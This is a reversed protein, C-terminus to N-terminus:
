CFPNPGILQEIFIELKTRKRGKKLFKKWELTQKAAPKWNTIRLGRFDAEVCDTQRLKPRGKTRTGSPVKNFIRFTLSSPDMRCIHGELRLHGIKIFTIIDAEMFLMKSLQSKKNYYNKKMGPTTPSSRQALYKGHDALALFLQSRFGGM